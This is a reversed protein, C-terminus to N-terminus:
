NIVALTVRAVGEAIMGLQEAAARSLDIIRGKTFPGRDNIVVEVTKGSIIHTVRIRTGFPLSRHAATLLSKDYLAGSATVRGHLKDSYWSAKGTVQQPPNQVPPQADTVPCIFSLMLIQVLIAMLNKQLRLFVRFERGSLNLDAQNGITKGPM